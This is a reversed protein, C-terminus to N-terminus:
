DLTELNELPALEKLGVDTVQTYWLSLVKLNTLAALHKLGADTVRSRRLDLERMDKKVAVMQKLKDDTVHMAPSFLPQAAVLAPAALAAVWAGTMRLRTM